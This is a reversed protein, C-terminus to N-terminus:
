RGSEENIRGAAWRLMAENWRDGRFFRVIDLHLEAAPRGGVTAHALEEAPIEDLIEPPLNGDRCPDGEMAVAIGAVFLVWRGCTGRVEALPQDNV